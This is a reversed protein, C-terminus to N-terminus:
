LKDDPDKVPRVKPRRAAWHMYGFGLAIMLAPLSFILQGTIFLIFVGAMSVVTAAYATLRAGTSYEVFGQWDNYEAEILWAPKIWRPPRAMVVAALLFLLLAIAVSGLAPGACPGGRYCEFLPIFLLFALGAPLQGFVGNRMWRPYEPNRYRSVWGWRWIGARALIGLSLTPLGLLLCWFVGRAADNATVAVIVPMGLWNSPYAAPYKAETKAIPRNRVTLM